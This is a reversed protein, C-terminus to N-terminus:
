FKQTCIPLMISSLSPLFRNLFSSLFSLVYSFISKLFFSGLSFFGLLFGRLLLSGIFSLVWSPFFALLFFSLFCYRFELVFSISFEIFVDVGSVLQPNIHDIRGCRPLLHEWFFACSRVVGGNSFFFFRSLM